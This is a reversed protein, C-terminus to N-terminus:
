GPPETSCATTARSRGSGTDCASRGYSSVPGYASSWAVWSRSRVASRAPGPRPQRVEWCYDIWRHWGFFRPSYNDTYIDAIERNEPSTHGNGHVAGELYAGLTDPTNFHRVRDKIVTLEGAPDVPIDVEPLLATGNIVTQHFHLAGPRYRTVAPMGGRRRWSDYTALLERHFWLFEQGPGNIRALLQGLPSHSPAFPNSTLPSTTATAATAATHWSNHWRNFLDLFEVDSLPVGDADYIIPIRFVPIGLLRSRTGQAWKM